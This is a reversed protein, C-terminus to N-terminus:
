RNSEADPLEGVHAVQLAPEDAPVPPRITPCKNIPFAFTLEVYGGIRLDDLFVRPATISCRLAVCSLFSAFSM